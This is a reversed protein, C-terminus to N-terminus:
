PAFPSDSHQADSHTEGHTFTGGGPPSHLWRAAAANAQGPTSSCSAGPTHYVKGSKDSQSCAAAGRPQKSSAEGQAMKEWGGEGGGSCRRGRRGRRPWSARSETEVIRRPSLSRRWSQLYSAAPQYLPAQNPRHAPHLINCHSLVAFM